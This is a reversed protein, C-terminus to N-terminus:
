ESSANGQRRQAGYLDRLLAAEAGHHILEDAVHFVFSRRSASGYPGAPEGIPEALSQEGATVLVGRWWRFAATLRALAEDAGRAHGGNPRTGTAVGLWGANREEALMDAIHDLRWRLGVRDDSTPLWAWEDDTLGDMRTALRDFVHDFVETLDDREPTM